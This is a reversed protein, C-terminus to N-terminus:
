PRPLSMAMDFGRLSREDFVADLELGDMISVKGDVRRDYLHFPLPTLGQTYGGSGAFDILERRDIDRPDQSPPWLGARAGAEEMATALNRLEQTVQNDLPVSYFDGATNALTLLQAQLAALGDIERTFGTGPTGTNSPREMEGCNQGLQMIEGIGAAEALTLFIQETLFEDPTMQADPPPFRSYNWGNDIAGLFVGVSEYYPDTPSTIRLLDEHQQIRERVAPRWSQVWREFDAVTHGAHREDPVVIRDCSEYMITLSPDRRHLSEMKEIWGAISDGGTYNPIFRLMEEGSPLNYVGPIEPDEVIFAYREELPVIGSFSASLHRDIAYGRGYSKRATDNRRLVFPGAGAPSGHSVVTAGLVQSPDSLVELVSSMLIHNTPAVEDYRFHHTRGNVTASLPFCWDLSSRASRQRLSERAHRQLPGDPLRTMPNVTSFRSQFDEGDSATNVMSRHPDTWYVDITFPAFDRPCLQAWLRLLAMTEKGRDESSHGFRANIRIPGTGIREQYLDPGYPMPHRILEYGPARAAEAADMLRRHTEYSRMRLGRLFSAGFLKVFDPSRRPGIRDISHM